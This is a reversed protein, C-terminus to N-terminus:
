KRGRYALKIKNSANLARVRLVGEFDGPNAYVYDLFLSYCQRAKKMWSKDRDGLSYATEGAFYLNLASELPHVVTLATAAERQADYVMMGWHLDCDKRQYLHFGMRGAHSLFHGKMVLLEEDEKGISFADTDDCRDAGCINFYFLKELTSDSHNRLRHGAVKTLRKCFLLDRDSITDALNVYLLTLRETHEGNEETLSSYNERLLGDNLCDYLQDLTKKNSM